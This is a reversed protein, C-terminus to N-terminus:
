HRGRFCTDVDVVYFPNSIASLTAPDRVRSTTLPEGDRVWIKVECTIEGSWRHGIMTIPGYTPAVAIANSWAHRSINEPAASLPSTPGRFPPREEFNILIAGMLSSCIDFREEIKKEAAAKTQAFATEIIILPESYKTALTMDAIFTVDRSGSPGDANTTTHTGNRWQLPAPCSRQQQKM